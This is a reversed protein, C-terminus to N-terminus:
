QCFAAVGDGAGAGSEVGGAGGAGWCFGIGEQFFM